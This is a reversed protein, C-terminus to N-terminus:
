IFRAAPNNRFENGCASCKVVAEEFDEKMLEFWKNLNDYVLYQLYPQYPKMSNFLGIERPMNQKDGGLFYDSEGLRIAQQVPFKLYRDYCPVCFNADEKIGFILNEYRM